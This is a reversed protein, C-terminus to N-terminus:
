AEILKIAVTTGHENPNDQECKSDISITAGYVELFRILLPMGFGTGQEGSTGPRSTAETMKFLNNKIKEPMGMGFDQITLIIAGRKNEAQILIESEPYSFKIANTLINNIVSNILSIKEAKVHMHPPVNSTLTINKCSYNEKLIELSENIASSLNVAELKIELKQEDISRIKRVMDIIGMCSQVAAQMVHSFKHKPILNMFNAIANLPNALDHCLVHILQRRNNSVKNIYDKQEKLKLHTQIRQLLETGNFPKSVYDVAGAEFAQVIDETDTKATLFIVPIDATKNNEKLNKCTEFGDMIPMMIDLLILDPLSTEVMELAEKGNYAIRIRYGIPKLMSGLVQINKPSDDVILIEYPTTETM